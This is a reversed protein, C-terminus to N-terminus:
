RTYPLNDEIALHFPVLQCTVFSQQQHQDLFCISFLNKKKNLQNQLISHLLPIQIHFYVQLEM